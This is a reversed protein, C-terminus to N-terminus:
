IRGKTGNRGRAEIVNIRNVSRRATAMASFITNRDGAELWKIRSRLKWKIGEQFILRRFQEQVFQRNARDEEEILGEEEKMDIM